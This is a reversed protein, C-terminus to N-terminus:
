CRKRWCWRLYSFSPFSNLWKCGKHLVPLSVLQSAYWVFLFVAMSSSQCPLRKLLRIHTHTYTYIGSYIVNPPIVDETHPKIQHYKLNWKGKKNKNKNKMSAYQNPHTHFTLLFFFYYAYFTHKNYTFM